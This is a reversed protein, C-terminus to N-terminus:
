QPPPCLEATATKMEELSEFEVFARGIAVRKRERKNHFHLMRVMAVSGFEKFIDKVENITVSYIKNNDVSKTPIDSVRLSLKINDRMKDRTFPEVRAISSETDNLKLFNKLREDEKVAKVLIEPNESHQKITNFKLLTEISVYPNAFIENRLFKDIRLNADSFFFRLREAVNSVVEKDISKPTIKSSSETSM